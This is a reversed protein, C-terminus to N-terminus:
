DTEQLLKQIEKKNNSLNNDSKDIPEITKAIPFSINICSLFTYKNAEEINNIENTIEKENNNKMNLFYRALLVIIVITGTLIVLYKILDKFKITTIM